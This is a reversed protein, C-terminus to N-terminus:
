GEEFYEKVTNTLITNLQESIGFRGKNIDLSKMIDGDAHRLTAAKWDCIMEILDVLTMDNIGHEFHEPHHRNEAYHHQLALGMEALSEKYEESGYTLSKLKPTVKDFIDKEPPQLKSKDHNFSRIMLTEILQHLLGEVTRVHNLTDLESDYEKM